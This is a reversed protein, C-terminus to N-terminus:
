VTYYVYVAPNPLTQLHCSACYQSVLDPCTGRVPRTKGGESYDLKREDKREEGNARQGLSVMLRGDCDGRRLHENNPPLESTHCCQRFSVQLLFLLSRWASVIMEALWTCSAWSSKSVMESRKGTM